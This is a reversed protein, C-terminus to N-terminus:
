VKERLDKIKGFYYPKDELIWVEFESIDQKLFPSLFNENLVDTGYAIANM